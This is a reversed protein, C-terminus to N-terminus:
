INNYNSNGTMFVMNDITAGRLGYLPSPLEGTFVWASATGVMLETSSLRDSAGYGGTVLMTQFTILPYYNINISCVKSGADNNFYACGHDYRGTQLTPLDKEWGAENYQSVTTLTDLGGTLIVSSGLNIACAYSSYFYLYRYLLRDWSM